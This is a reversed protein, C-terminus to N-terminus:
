GVIEVPEKLLGNMREADTRAMERSSGGPRSPGMRCVEIGGDKVLRWRWGRGTDVLGLRLEM